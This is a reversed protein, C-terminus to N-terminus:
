VAFACKGRPPDHRFISPVPFGSLILDDTNDFGSLDVVANWDPMRTYRGESINSVEPLSAQRLTEFVYLGSTKRKM